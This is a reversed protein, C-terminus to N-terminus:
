DMREDNESTGVEARVFKGYVARYTEYSVMAAHLFYLSVLPELAVGIAIGLKEGYADSLFEWSGMELSSSLWLTVNLVTM